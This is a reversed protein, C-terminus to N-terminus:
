NKTKCASSNVRVPCELSTFTVVEHVVWHIHTHTVHISLIPTKDKQFSLSIIRIKNWSKKPNRQKQNTFYKGKQKQNAECSFQPVSTRHLQFRGSSPHSLGGRQRSLGALRLYLKSLGDRFTGSTDKTYLLKVLSLNWSDINTPTEVCPAGLDDIQFYLCSHFSLM